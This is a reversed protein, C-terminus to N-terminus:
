QNAIRSVIDETVASYGIPLGTLVNLNTCAHHQGRGVTVLLGGLKHRLYTLYNEHKSITLTRGVSGITGVRVTPM